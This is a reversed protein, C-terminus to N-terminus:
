FEMVMKFSIGDRNGAVDRPDAKIDWAGEILVRRNHASAARGASFASFVRNVVAAIIVFKANQFIEDSRIRENKFAVRSQDTDWQWNFAPDTYLLDYERNRLKAQNYDSVSNFNGIDVAFKDDKSDFRAGSRQAAFLRADQRVWSAHSYFGAYTIWVAGEAILSYKGSEFNGAYLEGAGPLIASLGAALLVSKTSGAPVEEFVKSQPQTLQTTLVERGLSRVREQSYAQASLVFGALAILCALANLSGAHSRM